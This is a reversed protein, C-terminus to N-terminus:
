RTGGVKRLKPVVAKVAEITDQIEAETNDFALSIRVAHEARKLPIGSALLVPSAGSENSSCASRTSVYIGHESLAHVLVEPKVGEVSFNLIHPAAHEDPTNLDIGELKSLREALNNKLRRVHSLQNMSAESSMRLAKAMAAVAPLNETGSRFGSEQNGGSLLAKLQVGNRVYLIGVGRPGHFKHASLSALDIGSKKFDLPVKTIGQVHDVHFVIKPYRALLKGAEEVPQITGLENNVHIMSVFITDPRIAKELDQVSIRGGDTAPLYTVDFGFGKLQEFAQKVAPHEVETTIVHKGRSEYQFATGKVALNDSETGGSTFVVEQENVKLWHACVKRAENFVREAEGGLRHLSSPNGFYKEAVKSYTELVERYPKTTASNDLYIM